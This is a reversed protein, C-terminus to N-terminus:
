HVFLRELCAFGRWAKRGWCYVIMVDEGGGVAGGGGVSAAIRKRGLLFRLNYRWRSVEGGGGEPGMGAGAVDLARVGACVSSSSTALPPVVSASASSPTPM